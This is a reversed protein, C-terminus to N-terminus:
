LDFGAHVPRRRLQHLSAALPIAPRTSASGPDIGTLDHIAYAYEGSTLRRVTVRGPDGDHKKAYATLEARIWAIAQRRQTDNPQPMGKPPMRNQELAAAVKEWTQFSEGVSSQATLQQLSVGGM